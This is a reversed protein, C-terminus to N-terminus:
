RITDYYTTIKDVISNQTLIGNHGNAQGHGEDRAKDLPDILITNDPVNLIKGFFGIHIVPIKFTTEILKSFLYMKFNLYGAADASSIFAKVLPNPSNIGYQTLKADDVICFRTPDTWQAVVFKPKPYKINWHYLNHFITYNDAGGVALNYYDVNLKQAFKYSYTEKLPLGVGHTHSCGAFLIYNDFNIQSIPKSRHGNENHAYSISLTHYIWDHSKIQKNKQYTELDDTGIFPLSVSSHDDGIFNDYFKM